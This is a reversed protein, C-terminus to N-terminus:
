ANSELKKNTKAALTLIIFKTLSIYQDIRPETKIRISMFKLSGRTLKDAQQPQSIIGICFNEISLNQHQRVTVL